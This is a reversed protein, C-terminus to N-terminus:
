NCQPALFEVLRKNIWAQRDPSIGRLWNYSTHGPMDVAPMMSALTLRLKDPSSIAAIQQAITANVPVYEANEGFFKPLVKLLVDVDYFDIGEDHRGHLERLMVPSFGDGRGLQWNSASLESFREGRLWLRSKQAATGKTVGGTYFIRDAREPGLIADLKTKLDDIGAPLKAEAAKIKPLMQDVVKRMYQVEEPWLFAAKILHGGRLSAVLPSQWLTTFDHVLQATEANKVPVLLLAEKYLTELGEKKDKQDSYLGLAAGASIFRGWAKTEIHVRASLREMMESFTLDHTAGFSEVAGVQTRRWLKDSEKYKERFADLKGAVDEYDPLNLGESTLLSKLHNVKRYAVIVGEVMLPFDAIPKIRFFYPGPREGPALKGTVAELSLAEQVHSFDKVGLVVGAPKEKLIGYPVSDSKADGHWAGSQPDRFLPRFYELATRYEELSFPDKARFFVSENARQRVSGMPFSELVLQRTAPSLSGEGELYPRVKALQARLDPLKAFLPDGAFSLMIPSDKGQAEFWRCDSKWAGLGADQGVVAHRLFYGMLRVIHQRLEVAGVDVLPSSVTDWDQKTAEPLTHYNARFWAPVQGGGQLDLLYDRSSSDFTGGYTLRDLTALREEIDRDLEERFELKRRITDADIVPDRPRVSRGEPELLEEVSLGEVVPKLRKLRRSVEGKGKEIRDPAWSEFFSLMARRGNISIAEPNDPNYFCYPRGSTLVAGHATRASPRLSAGAGSDGAAEAIMEQRRHPPAYDIESFEVKITKAAKEVDFTGAVLCIERAVGRSSGGPARWKALFEAVAKPDREKIDLVALWEFRENWGAPPEVRLPNPLHRSVVKLVERFEDLSEYRAINHRGEILGSQPSSRRYSELGLSKQATMIYYAREPVSYRVAFQHGAICAGELCGAKNGIPVYPGFEKEVGFSNTMSLYQSVAARRRAEFDGQLVDFRRLQDFFGRQDVPGQSAVHLAALCWSSQTNPNFRHISEAYSADLDSLGEASQLRALDLKSSIRSELERLPATESQIRSVVDTDFNHEFKAALTRCNKPILQLAAAVAPGFGAATKSGPGPIAEVIIEAPLSAPWKGARAVQNAEESVMERVTASRAEVVADLNFIRDLAELGNALSASDGKRLATKVTSALEKLEARDVAEPLAASALMSNLLALDAQARIVVESSKSDATVEM